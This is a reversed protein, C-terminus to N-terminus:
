FRSLWAVTCTNAIYGCPCYTWHHFILSCQFPLEISEGWGTSLAVALAKTVWSWPPYELTILSPNTMRAARLRAPLSQPLAKIEVLRKKIRADRARSGGVCVCACMCVSGCPFLSSPIWVGAQELLLYDGVCPLAYVIKPATAWLLFLDVCQRRGQHSVIKPTLWWCTSTVAAPQSHFSESTFGGFVVAQLM